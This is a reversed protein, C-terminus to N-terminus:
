RSRPELWADLAPWMHTLAHPGAALSVHGGPLVLEQKDRSGARQVLPQACAPPVVHDDRAVVHLLPVTIRGLDIREGDIHLRGEHLANRQLLEKATQRFYGGPLALADNGWCEMTRYADASPDDWLRDWLRAQAGPRGAPSPLDFGAMVVHAPVIGVQDVFRDVDFHRPDAMARFLTMRSFDIPTALCVLNRVPGGAHLAQYLVSLLGGACYGVLTLERVGADQQVRRICEPLFGLVYDELQLDHEDDRPTHWDILYVDHGRRLLFEVLSQGPALDLVYAKHTPAMVILLPVRHVQGAMAHYHALELTGRRHLVTRPTPGVALPPKDPRALSQLSRQVAREVDLRLRGILAQADTERQPTNPIAAM